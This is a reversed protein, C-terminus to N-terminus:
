AYDIIRALRTLRNRFLHPAAPPSTFYRPIVYASRTSSFPHSSRIVSYRHCRYTRKSEPCAGSRSSLLPHHPLILLDNKSSCSLAYSIIRLFDPSSGHPSGYHADPLKQLPHLLNALRMPRFLHRVNIATSSCLAFASAKRAM